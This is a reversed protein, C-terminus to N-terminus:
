LDWKGEKPLKELVAYFNPIEGIKKGKKLQTLVEIKEDLLEESSLDFYKLEPIGYVEAYLDEVKLMKEIKEKENV